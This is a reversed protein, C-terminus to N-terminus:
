HRFMYALKVFFGDSTRALRATPDLVLDRALSSGYGFFAVTGPTPEYSVLWDMRLGDVRQPGAISGNVLLPFGTAPDQLAVRRESRYETILRFFLSRNPQYELKIRPITTRAFETQDRDREIRSSVLSLDIRASTTPRLGLTTTVRTEHGNSAEAFIATGARSVEVEANLKQFVPTTVAYTGGWNTVGDPPAFAVTTGSPQWVAYAQYMAPQFRVFNRSVQASLQWGGRLQATLHSQDSGEIAGTHGFSAYRWDRTPGFFTTLNELWAGRQGYYTFRNSAHFEVIDNRPVYGSQTEFSEGFGVLKYNFGWRRATRDFEAQWMPSSSVTGDRETWSGGIQGLLYYLRGFVWRADAAVVRNFAGASERDTFTLGALSDSGFDQRLRAVNVWAHGDGTTDAASLVAIGTRGVKGTLKGGVIPDVIRRTYVLQNPTAFLEIGELFFPRKEAFFLAFRENVTVQSADSEVQSFDPNVTADVSLNTFGLRVNAGPSIDTKDRAFQGAGTLAGNSSGTVFPQIETVVGRQLDRLGEMTGAQALFSAIRKADTWTDERGTRQTKRSFNIGWRQPGSGPYRLSKFPIRVEVIYGDASLQGKSDFQYDPNLDITGGFMSGANFAGETQVGDEQAGLPNVGFVFARRRDSFTDLFIRVWDDQSINDRDAVTARISGPVSDHAIIGFYLASPSYFVLVETQESAPQSDVPRYESFGTLRTAQSWAPEDLRGDIAITVDIRPISFTPSGRGKVVVASSAPPPVAPPPASAGPAQILGLCLLLATM